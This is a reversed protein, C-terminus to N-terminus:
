LDFTEAGRRIDLRQRRACSTVGSCKVQLLGVRGSPVGPLNRVLRKLKAM